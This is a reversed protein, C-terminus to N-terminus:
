SLGKRAHLKILQENLRERSGLIDLARKEAYAFISAANDIELRLEIPIQDEQYGDLIEGLKNIHLTQVYVDLVAPHIFSFKV